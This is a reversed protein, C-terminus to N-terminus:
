SKDARLSAHYAALHEPIKGAERLETYVYTIDSHVSRRRPQITEYQTIVSEEHQYWGIRTAQM